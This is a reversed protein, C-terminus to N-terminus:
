VLLMLNWFRTGQEKNLERKCADNQEDRAWGEVKTRRPACCIANSQAEPVTESHRRHVTYQPATAISSIYRLFRHCCDHIVGEDPARSMAPHAQEQTSTYGVHSETHPHAGKYHTHTHTHTQTVNCWINCLVVHKWTLCLFGFSWTSINYPACANGTLFGRGRTTKHSVAVVECDEVAGAHSWWWGRVDTGRVPRVVFLLHLHQDM